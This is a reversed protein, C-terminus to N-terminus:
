KEERLAREVEGRKRERAKGLTGRWIGIPTKAVGGLGEEWKGIESRDRPAFGVGRRRTEVFKRGEELKEVLVKFQNATKGAGATGKKLHKKITLIAPLAIEPFAINTSYLAHFGAM